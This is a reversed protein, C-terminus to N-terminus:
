NENLSFIPPSRGISIPVSRELSSRLLPLVFLLFCLTFSVRPSEAQLPTEMNTYLRVLHENASTPRSAQELRLLDDSASIFPFLAVVVLAIGLIQLWTIEGKKQRVTAVFALVGLILWLLNLATDFSV